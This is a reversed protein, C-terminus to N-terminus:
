VGFNLATERLQLRVTREAPWDFNVWELTAALTMLSEDGVHFDYTKYPTASSSSGQRAPAGAMFMGFIGGSVRWIVVRNEELSVTVLRHGDPSWSLATVPHKHGELVYLRTATRLDYVIAAGEHTGVALRQSSGHFAVSPFTRVLENLIFTATQQVTERLSSIKPDLSKVVTEVLRPLNSYLILPKKRIVFGLLKLTANRAQATPANLIDFILTTMFLPTNSGAVHLTANRALIRLDNPIAPNRGIAIAFLNRVLSMADVYNQWVAFGRSCLETAMAQHSPREEDELYAAISAAVDRLVSSSLLSYRDIAVLGILLFAHDSQRHLFAESAGEAPLYARWSDVLALIDEDEMSTLYTGFLSRAAQQVEANRDLWFSGLVELSPPVFKPGVVGALCSAYYVIAESAVRELDPYNLFLRLLCVLQLLRQATLSSSICWAENPRTSSVLAQNEVNVGCLGSVAPATEIDLDDFIDKLGVDHIPGSLVALLRRAIRYYDVSDSTGNAGSSTKSLDPSGDPTEKSDSAEKPTSSWPLSQAANDLLRRLDLTIVDALPVKDSRGSRRSRFWTSWGDETLVSETTKRDMSRRLERSAIDCIRALGQEYLVLIDTQSLAILEVASLTGPLTFLHRSPFLSVFAVPSNASIFAVSGNLAPPAHATGSTSIFAFDKVPSAFLTWRGLCDWDLEGNINASSTDPSDLSFVSIAGTNYGVLFSGDDIKQVKTAVRAARPPSPTFLTALDDIKAAASPRFAGSTGVERLFAYLCVRQKVAVVVTRGDEAVCVSKVDKMELKAVERAPSSSLDLVSISDSDHALVGSGLNRIGRSAQLGDPLEIRRDDSFCLRAPQHEDAAAELSMVRAYLEIPGTSSPSSLYVLHQLGDLDVVDVTDKAPMNEGLRTSSGIRFSTLNISVATNPSGRAICLAFRTQAVECVILDHFDVTAQSISSDASECSAFVRGDLLSILSLRGNRRLVLLADGENADACDLGPIVHLSALAGADGTRVKLMPVLGRLTEPLVEGDTTVQAAISAADLPPQELEEDPSLLTASSSTEWLGIGTAISDKARVHLRKHPTDPTSAGEKRSSLSSSSFVFHPFSSSTPSLPTPSLPPSPSTPLDPENLSASSISAASSYTHSATAPTAASTSLSVTASAKRPRSHTRVLEFSTLRDQATSPAPSASTPSPSRKTRATANTAVSALSSSSPRSSLRPLSLLRPSKTSASPPSPASSEADRATASGPSLFAELSLRRSDRPPRNGPPVSPAAGYRREPSDESPAFVWVTGDECGVAVRLSAASRPAWDEAEGPGSRRKGTRKKVTGTVMATIRGSTEKMWPPLGSEDQENRWDGEVAAASLDGAGQPYLIHHRDALADALLPSLTKTSASNGQFEEDRVDEQNTGVTQAAPGEDEPVSEIDWCGAASDLEDFVDLFEGNEFTSSPPPPTPPLLDALPLTINLPQSSLASPTM